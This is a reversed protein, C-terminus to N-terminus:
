DINSHVGNIEDLLEKWHEIAKSIKNIRSSDREMYPVFLLDNITSDAAQIRATLWDSVLMTTADVHNFHHSCYYQLPKM